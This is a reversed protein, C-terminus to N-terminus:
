CSSGPSRAPGLGVLIEIRNRGGGRWGARRSDDRLRAERSGRNKGRWGPAGRGQRACSRRSPERGPRIETGSAPVRPGLRGRAGGAERFLAGGGALEVVGSGVRALREGTSV